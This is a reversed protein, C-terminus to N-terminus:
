HFLIRLTMALREIGFDRGKPNWEYAPSQFASCDRKIQVPELNLNSAQRRSIESAPLSRKGKRASNVGGSAPEFHSRPSTKLLGRHYDASM